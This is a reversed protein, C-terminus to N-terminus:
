SVEQQTSDSHTSQASHSSSTGLVLLHIDSAGIRYTAGKKKGKRRPQSEDWVNLVDKHNAPDERYKNVLRQLYTEKGWRPQHPASLAHFDSANSDHGGSTRLFTKPSQSSYDIQPLQPRYDTQPLQPRYDTHPLQTM